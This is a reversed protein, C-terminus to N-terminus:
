NHKGYKLFHFDQFFLQQANKQCLQQSKMKPLTTSNYNCKPSGYAHIEGSMKVSKQCNRGSAIILPCIRSIDPINELRIAAM